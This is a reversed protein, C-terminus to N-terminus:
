GTFPRGKGVARVPASPAFSTGFNGHKEQRPGQVRRVQCFDHIGPWNLLCSIEIILFASTPPMRGAMDRVLDVHGRGEGDGPLAARRSKTAGCWNPM